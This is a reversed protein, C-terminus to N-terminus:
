SRPRWGGNGLALSLTSGRVLRIADLIIVKETQGEGIIKKKENKGGESGDYADKSDVLWGADYEIFHLLDVAM